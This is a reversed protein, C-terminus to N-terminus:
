NIDHFRWLAEVTFPRVSSLRVSSVVTYLNSCQTYRNLYLLLHM